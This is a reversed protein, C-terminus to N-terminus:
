EAVVEGYADINDREGFFMYFLQSFGPTIMFSLSWITKRMISFDRRCLVEIYIYLIFLIIMFLVLGAVVMTPGDMMDYYEKWTTQNTSAM